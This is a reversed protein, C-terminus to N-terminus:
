QGAAPASPEAPASQPEAALARNLAAALAELSADSYGVRVASVRGDRGIIVMHPINGVGYAERAKRDPDFTTTLGLERVYRRLKKYVDVDEVNVAIVQMKDSGVKAQINHLVPLEQLCPGCWSAWFSVVYAKGSKLDLTLNPGNFERGVYTPPVDGVALKPPKKEAFSVTAVLACLAAIARPRILHM